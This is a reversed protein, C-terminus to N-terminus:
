PGAKFLGIVSNINVDGPLTWTPDVATLTSALGYASGMDEDDAGALLGSLYQLLTVGGSVSGSPALTDGSCAFSVILEGLQTPVLSGPKVTAGSTEFSGTAADYVSATTATGSFALVAMSNYDDDVDTFVHNASTVPAYSYFMKIMGAAGTDGYAQLGTQWTNNESDTPPAPIGASFTCEALVILTAGRTDIPSTSLGATYDHAM